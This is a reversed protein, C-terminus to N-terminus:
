ILLRFSMSLFMAFSLSGYATGYMIRETGCQPRRTTETLVEMQRDSVMMQCAGYQARLGVARLFLTFLNAFEGCRGVRTRM